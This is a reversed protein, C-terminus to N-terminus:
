TSFSIRTFQPQSDVDKLKMGDFKNLIGSNAMGDARIVPIKKERLADALGPAKQVYFSDYDDSLRETLRDIHRDFDRRREEVSESEDVLPENGFLEEFKEDGIQKRLSENNKRAYEEYTKEDALLLQMYKEKLALIELEERTLPGGKAEQAMRFRVTIDDHEEAPNYIVRIGELEEPKIGLIEGCITVGIDTHPIHHLHIGFPFKPFAFVKGNKNIFLGISTPARDNPFDSNEIDVNNNELLEKIKKWTSREKSLEHYTDPAIILNARMEKALEKFEDLHEITYVIEFSFETTMITDLNTKNKIADIHQRLEEITKLRCINITAVEFNRHKEAEKSSDPMSEPTKLM